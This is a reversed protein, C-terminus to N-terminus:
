VLLKAVEFMIGQFSLGTAFWSIAPRWGTKQNKVDNLGFWLNIVFLTIWILLSTM